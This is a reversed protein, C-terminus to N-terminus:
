RESPTAAVTRAHDTLVLPGTAPAELVRDAGGEGERIVGLATIEEGIELAGERYRLSRNFGLSTTGEVGVQALFAAEAPTLDDFTGSRTQHDHVVIVHPDDMRVRAVGSADRLSFEVDEEDRFIEVWMRSKGRSQHEEVIVQFYVCPRGSLPAELTRRHAEVRGRLRTMAGPPAEAIARVPTAALRRRARADRSFFAQYVTIGAGLALIGM